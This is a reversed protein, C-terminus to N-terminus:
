IQEHSSHMGNRGAPINEALDNIIEAIGANAPTQRPYQMAFVPQTNAQPNIIQGRQACQMRSQIRCRWQLLDIADANTAPPIHLRQGPIGGHDDLGKAATQGLGIDSGHCCVGTRRQPDDKFIQAGFGPDILVM